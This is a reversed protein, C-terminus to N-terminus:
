HLLHGAASEGTSVAGEMFGQWDGIHEGAFLVKGHPEELLPRIRFWQGPRYIAYAGHVWPDSQWPQDFSDILAAAADPSVAALDRMLQAQRDAKSQAALVDAKDGCAYSCLIGHPGAQGLTSHYYQHSTEDSMLSFDEAPWFRKDFLMQSKIIRGYELEDAALAKFPSLAPEFQISNLVSAPAAFICADATFSETATAATVKGPKQTISTVASNLHVSGAPLRAVLANVLESNGGRVHYDMEDTNNPNIYDTDVYEDAAVFASVERISEGYDTSDMIERIRRDEETMGIKGLWTWWDYDDLRRKEHEDYKKYQEMFKKWAAQSKESFGWSGPARLQDQQLLWVRYTHPELAVNLERALALIQKHDKGIWEGGMECTLEPAQAFRYTWARGGARNRAELVTVKWGAASLRYAATLGALGAGVIVCSHQPRATRVRQAELSLGCAAMASSVLFSRRSVASSKMWSTRHIM